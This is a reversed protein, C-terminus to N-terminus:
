PGLMLVVDFTYDNYTLSRADGVAMAALKKNTEDATTKAQEIHLPTADILHVKHGKDHLWFSYAGAGGGIDLITSQKKTIHRLILDKTRIKELSSDHLRGKEKGKNYYKLVESNLEM